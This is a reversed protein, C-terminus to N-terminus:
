SLGAASIKLKDVTCKTVGEILSIGCSPLISFTDCARKTALTKHASAMRTTVHMPFSPFFCDLLQISVEAPLRDSRGSATPNMTATENTHIFRILAM